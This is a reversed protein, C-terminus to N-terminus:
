GVLVLEYAQPPRRDALGTPGPPGPPGAPRLDAPGGARGPRQVWSGRRTDRVPAPIRPPIGGDPLARQSGKWELYSIVNAFTFRADPETGGDDDHAAGGAEKGDM